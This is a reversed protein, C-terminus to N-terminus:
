IFTKWGNFKCTEVPELKVQSKNTTRWMKHEKVLIKNQQMQSKDDRVPVQWALPQHHKVRM